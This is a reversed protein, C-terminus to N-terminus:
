NSVSAAVQGAVAVEAQQESNEPLAIVAGSREDTARTVEIAAPAEVAKQSTSFPCANVRPAFLMALIVAVVFTKLPFM